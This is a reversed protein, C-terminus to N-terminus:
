CDVYHVGNKIHAITGQTVGYRQGIVRQTLGSHLLEKIERAQGRTLKANPAAKGVLLRPAVEGPEMYREGRNIYGVVGQTVGFRDAIVRQLVGAVLLDKVERVQEPTLAARPSEHGRRQPPILGTLVAHRNNVTQTVLELNVIRNDTKVGNKHNIELTLDEIAGNAYEWIVRHAMVQYRKMTVSDWVCIATYNKPRSYGLPGGTKKSIVYGEVPMVTWKGAAIYRRALVSHYPNVLM